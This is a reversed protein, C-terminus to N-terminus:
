RRGGETIAEKLSSFVRNLAQTLAQFRIQNLALKAMEEEIEVTNGDARPEKPPELKYQVLTLSDSPSQGIHRPHTRAMSAGEQGEVTALMKQFDLDAAKYNPTEAHAVNTAIVKGRALTVDMAREIFGLTRELDSTRM